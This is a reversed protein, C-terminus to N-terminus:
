IAVYVRHRRFTESVPLSLGLADRLPNNDANAKVESKKSEMLISCEGQFRSLYPAVPNIIHSM